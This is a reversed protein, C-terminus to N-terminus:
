FTHVGSFPFHHFFNFIYYYYLVRYHHDNNSYVVIRRCWVYYTYKYRNRDVRTPQLIGALQIISDSAVAASTQRPKNLLLPSPFVDTTVCPNQRRRRFDIVIRPQCKPDAVTSCRKFGKSKSGFRGTYWTSPIGYTPITCTLIGYGHIKLTSPYRAFFLM